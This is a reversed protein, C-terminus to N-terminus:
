LPCYRCRGPIVRRLKITALEERLIEIVRNYEALIREMNDCEPWQSVQEMLDVVLDKAEQERSVSVTAGAYSGRAIRVLDEPMQETTFRKELLKRDPVEAIFKLYEVIMASLGDPHLGTDGPDRILDFSDISDLQRQLRIKAADELRRIETVLYELRGLAKWIPSRPLHERLAICLRDNREPLPILSPKLLAGELRETFAVIDAYHFELANKLVLTRAERSEREDRALQINTRVTRVDYGDLEAIQPPTQGDEEVRRLWNRRTELGVAPKKIRKAM